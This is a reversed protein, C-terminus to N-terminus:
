MKIVVDQDKCYLVTRYPVTRYLVACCLVACCLVSYLTCYLVTELVYSCNTQMEVAFCETIHPNYKKKQELM